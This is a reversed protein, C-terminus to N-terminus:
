DIYMLISLTDHWTTFLHMGTELTANVPIVVTDSSGASDLMTILYILLNWCRAHLYLQSWCAVRYTRDEM